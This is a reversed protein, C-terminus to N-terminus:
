GDQRQRPNPRHLEKGIRFFNASKPGRDKRIIIEEPPNVTRRLSIIRRCGRERPVYPFPSCRTLKRIRQAPISGTAYPLRASRIGGRRRRPSPSRALVNLKFGCVPNRGPQPRFRIRVVDQFHVDPERPTDLVAIHAQYPPWGTQDEPRYSFM